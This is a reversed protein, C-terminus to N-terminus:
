EDKKVVKYGREELWFLFDEPAAWSTFIGHGRMLWEDLTDSVAREMPPLDARKRIKPKNNM